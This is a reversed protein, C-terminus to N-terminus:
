GTEQPFARYVEAAHVAYANLGYHIRYRPHRHNWAGRVSPADPCFERYGTPPKIRGGCQNRSDPITEALPLSPYPNARRGEHHARSRPSASCNPAAGKKMKRRHNAQKRSAIENKALQELNAKSRLVPSECLMDSPCSLRIRQSAEAYVASASHPLGDWRSISWM